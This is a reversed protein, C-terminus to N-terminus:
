TSITLGGCVERVDLCHILLLNMEYVCDYRSLRLAGIWGKWGEDWARLKYSLSQKGDSNGYEGLLLVYVWVLGIDWLCLIEVDLWYSHLSVDSSFFVTTDCTMMFIKRAFLYFLWELM